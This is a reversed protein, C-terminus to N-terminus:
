SNLISFTYWTQYTNSVRLNACEKILRQLAKCKFTSISTGRHQIRVCECITSRRTKDQMHMVIIAVKYCLQELLSNRTVGLM